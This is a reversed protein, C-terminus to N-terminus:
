RGGGKAQNPVPSASPYPIVVSSHSLYSFTTKGCRKASDHRVGRKTGAANLMRDNAAHFFGEM